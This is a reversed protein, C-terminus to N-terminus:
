SVKSSPINFTVSLPISLLIHSPLLLLSFFLSFTAHVSPRSNIYYKESYLQHCNFRFLSHKPNVHCVHSLNSNWASKKQNSFPKFNNSKSPLKISLSTKLFASKHLHGSIWQNLLPYFKLYDQDKQTLIM